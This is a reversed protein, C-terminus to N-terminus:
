SIYFYHVCDHITVDVEKVVYNLLTVLQSCKLPPIKSIAMMIGTTNSRFLSSQRPSFQFSVSFITQTFVPVICLVKAPQFSSCYLSSQRPSFQFMVSFIPTTFVPVICLLHTKHGNSQNENRGSRFKSSIYAM